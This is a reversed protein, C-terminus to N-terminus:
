RAFAWARTRALEDPEGPPFILEYVAYSMSLMQGPESKPQLDSQRHMPAM